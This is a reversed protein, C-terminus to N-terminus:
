TAAFGSSYTADALGADLGAANAVLLPRGSELITSAPWSAKRTVTSGTSTVYVLELGILDVPSPGANTLEAFEDSASAGGTQVESILLTSVPWAVSTALAAARPAPRRAAAAVLSTAVVVLGLALTLAVPGARRVRSMSSRGAPHRISSRFSASAGAPDPRPPRVNYCRRTSRLKWGACRGRM